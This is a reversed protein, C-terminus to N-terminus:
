GAHRDTRAESIDRVYRVPDRRTYAGAGFIRVAAYILWRKLYGVGASAMAARMLRDAFKRDEPRADHDPLDQWAVYLFDHVIAAELHPGVRGVFIRAIRPVSALDTVMGEPVTIERRGDNCDFRVKYPRAVIYHADAGERRQVAEICRCLHLPTHYVFNTIGSSPLGPYPDELDPVYPQYDRCDM